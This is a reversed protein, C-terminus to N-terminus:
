LIVALVANNLNYHNIKSFSNLRFLRCDESLGRLYNQDFELPIGDLLRKNINSVILALECVFFLM